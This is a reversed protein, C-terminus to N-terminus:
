RVHLVLHCGADDAAGMKAKRDMNAAKAFSRVRPAGHSLAFPGGQPGVGLGQPGWPTGPAGPAGEVPMVAFLSAILDYRVFGPAEDERM